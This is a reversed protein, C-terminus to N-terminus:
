KKELEIVRQKLQKNEKDCQEQHDMLREIIKELQDVKKELTAVQKKLLDMGKEYIKIVTGTNALEIQEVEAETKQIDIVAKKKALKPLVFRGFLLTAVSIIATWM